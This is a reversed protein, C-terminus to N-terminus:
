IILEMDCAEEIIEYIKEESLGDGAMNNYNIGKECSLCNLNCKETTRFNMRAPSPMEGKYWKVIKKLEASKSDLIDKGCM